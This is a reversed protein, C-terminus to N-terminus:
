NCGWPVDATKLHVEWKSTSLYYIGKEGPTMTFFVVIGETLHQSMKVNFFGWVLLSFLLVLFGVLCLGCIFCELKQLPHWYAKRKGCVPSLVLKQAGSLVPSSGARPHSTGPRPYKAATELARSSKLDSLNQSSNRRQNCRYDKHQPHSQCWNWDKINEPELKCPRM